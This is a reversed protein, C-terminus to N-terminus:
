EHEGEKRSAACDQGEIRGYRRERQSFDQLARHLEQATFDPWLVPSFFFEAYASQFLLFNSIRMEGSTRIVLDPDPLSPDYLADRFAGETLDEPPIGRKVLSRAAHLIEERGSYSIALTLRMHRNSRTKELGYSLAQRALFPLDDMEGIFGLRIDKEMLLPLEQKLFSCFLEFLFQVEEKPRNWNERSFAYLTLYPISLSRCETVVTRVADMGARHGQIRPLGRKQAWRGNGDMIVAIHGPLKCSSLSQETM